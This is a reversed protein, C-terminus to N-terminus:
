RGSFVSFGTVSSTHITSPGRISNPGGSRGIGNGVRMVMTRTPPSSNMWEGVGRVSPSFACIAAIPSGAQIMPGLRM